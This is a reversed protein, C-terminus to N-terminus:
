SLNSPAHAASEATAATAMLQNMHRKAFIFCGILILLESFLNISCAAFMGYKPLFLLNAVLSILATPLAVWFVKRDQAHVWLGQAFLSNIVVVFKSTLLIAFPIAADAFASGYLLRILFPSLLFAVACIPVSVGLGLGALQLQKKWLFDPGRKRWEVFRPFLLIPVLGLVQQLSAVLNVAMRYKGLETLSSLYGLLPVEFQVYIYVVLGTIFLWRGEWLVPWIQKLKSLDVPLRWRSGYAVRGVLAVQVAVAVVQVVVDSGTAQGPRFFVLFLLAMAVSSIAIARYNTPTNEDAVVIWGPHIAMLVFLPFAATIGLWWSPPLKLVIAVAISLLGLILSFFLRQTLVFSVWFARNEATPSEKYRRTFLPDLSGNVFLLLQGMTAVIMGSIGLKEPGLCRASWASGAITVLRTLGLYVIIQAIQKTFRHSVVDALIM